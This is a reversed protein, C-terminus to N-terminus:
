TRTAVLGILKKQETTLQRAIPKAELPKYGNLYREEENSDHPTEIPAFKEEIIREIARRQDNSLQVRVLKLYHETAEASLKGLERPAGEVSLKESVARTIQAQRDEKNGGWPTHDILETPVGLAQLALTFNDNRDAVDLLQQIRYDNKDLLFQDLRWFEDPAVTVARDIYALIADDLQRKATRRSENDESREWGFQEVFERIVETPENEGLQFARAQYDQFGAARVV